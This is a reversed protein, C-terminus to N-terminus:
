PLDAETVRPKGQEVCWCVTDLLDKPHFPKRLLAFVRPDIEQVIEDTGATIAIVHRLVTPCADALEELVEFGDAVPMMLDLIVAEYWDDYIRTIAEVGNSAQHCDFPARELIQTVLLRIDPEDDVVLVRPRESTPLASM